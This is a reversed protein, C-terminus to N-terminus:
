IKEKYWGFIIYILRCIVCVSMFYVFEKRLSFNVFGFFELKIIGYVVLMLGWLWEIDVLIVKKFSDM